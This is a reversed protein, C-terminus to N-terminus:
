ILNEGVVPIKDEAKNFFYDAINVIDFFYDENLILGDLKDPIEVDNRFYVFATPANWKDKSKVWKWGFPQLHDWLETELLPRHKLGYRDFYRFIEAKDSLLFAMSRLMVNPNDQKLKMLM